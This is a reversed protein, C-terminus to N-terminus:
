IYIVYIFNLFTDPESSYSAAVTLTRHFFATRLFKPFKVPFCRLKEYNVIM